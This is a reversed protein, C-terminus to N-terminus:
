PKINIIALDSRQPTLLRRLRRLLVQIHVKIHRLMGDGGHSVGGGSVDHTADCDAREGSPTEGLTAM